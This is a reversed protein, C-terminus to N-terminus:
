VYITGSGDSVKRVNTGHCNCCTIPDVYLGGVDFEKKCDDCYYIRSQVPGGGMYGGGVQDMEEDSLLMGAKKITERAEERTEAKEVKKKLEGTLKM